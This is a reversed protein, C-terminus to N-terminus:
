QLVNLRRLEVIKAEKARRYTENDSGRKDKEIWTQELLPADINTVEITAQRVGHNFKGDSSWEYSHTYHITKPKNQEYEVAHVVMVHFFRNDTGAELIVIMDGPAVDKVSVAQSNAAHALTKVNTNEVSRFATLLKRLINKALPYNLVRKLSKGTKDLVEAKLTYYALASCDVGINHSQLFTRVEEETISTLDVKSKLALIEVEDLIDRPSGKGISVRLGARINKRKNNYYLCPLTVGGIQLHEYDNLVQMASDSLTKKM